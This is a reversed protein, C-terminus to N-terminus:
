SPPRTAGVEVDLAYRLGKALDAATGQGWIRIFISQPHEGVLHNRISTINLNRTRLALLVRQLEDGNVIMDVDAFARENTGFISIKMSMGMERGIPTGNVLAVRGIAARYIGDPASGRMSLIANLSAPDIANKVPMSPPSASPQPTEDRIRRVEDLAKRFAGGLTAYEGDGTVNLTLLRPQEFLLTSGLGTVELGSKLAVTIVPNVEDDLLILEGNVMGQRRKSPGFTAWSAPSQAPLLRQSGVQLSLDSRPFLFKYASEESVYTGKAGLTRDLGARAQESIPPMQATSCVAAAIAAWTRWMRTVNSPKMRILLNM